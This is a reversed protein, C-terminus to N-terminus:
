VTHTRLYNLFVNYGTTSYHLGDRSYSDIIYGDENAMSSFLDLYYVNKDISIQMMTSNFSLLNSRKFSLSRSLYSKSTPTISILYVTPNNLKARVLDIIKCCAKSAETRGICSAVITHFGEKDTNGLIFTYTYASLEKFSMFGVEYCVPRKYTCATEPRDAQAVIFIVLIGLDM